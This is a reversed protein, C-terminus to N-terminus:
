LLATLTYSCATVSTLLVPIDAYSFNASRNPATRLLVEPMPQPNWSLKHSIYLSSSHYNYNHFCFPSSNDYVRQPRPVYIVRKSCAHSWSQCKGASGAFHGHANRRPFAAQPRTIASRLLRRTVASGKWGNDAENTGGWRDAHRNM